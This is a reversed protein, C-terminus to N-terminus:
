EVISAKPKGIHYGQLYLAGLKTLEDEVEQSHIKEAIVDVGIDKAFQIIYTLVRKTENDINVNEVLSGDLKLYDIKLRIVYEFNSYGTGFDDIAIKVGYKRVEQIFIKVTDIENLEQTELLEVVVQSGIQYEELLEFFLNLTDQNLIDEQAFNISFSIDKKDKFYEFTKKIMTQTLKSYLKSKNSIDMFYNPTYIEGDDDIRILSEYKYIKGTKSNKLPMFYPVIRDEQIAERLKKTWIINQTYEDELMLSNDYVEIMTKSKKANKLALTAKEIIRTDQNFVYGIKISVLIETEKYIFSHGKIISFITNFNEQSIESKDEFAIAFEDGFIRYVEYKGDLEINKLIHSFDKLIYDGVKVGYFSNIEKFSDINVIALTHYKKDSLDKQLKTLNPLSTMNDIYITDLLKDYYFKITALLKNFSTQMTVLETINTDMDVRINLDQSKEVKQIEKTIEIVPKVIKKNIIYAILALFFALFLIFFLIFYEEIDDLSIKIESPPYSIDLVGNIDGVEVNFHCTLCEQQAKIPYIYRISGDDKIGFQEEGKMAKQLLIDNKVINSDSKIIGLIDATTKSRYSNIHLGNRILQMRKLIQNLDDKGWGEQMRAYMTEFIFESTKYADDQALNHIAKDKVFYSLSVVSVTGILLLIFIIKITMAQNSITKKNKM